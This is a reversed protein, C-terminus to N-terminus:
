SIFIVIKSTLFSFFIFGEILKRIQFKTKIYCSLIFNGTVWSGFTLFLCVYTIKIVKGIM